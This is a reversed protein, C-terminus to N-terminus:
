GARKNVLFERWAKRLAVLAHDGYRSLYNQLELRTKAAVPFNRDARADVALDGVQDDRDVQDLLWRHFASRSEQYVANVAVARAALLNVADQPRRWKAHSQVSRENWREVAILYRKEHPEAGLHAQHDDFHSADRFIDCRACYYLAADSEDQDGHLYFRPLALAQFQTSSATRQAASTESHRSLLSWNTFGHERAIRDLAESHTLFLEDALKKAQRKFRSIQASSFHIAM